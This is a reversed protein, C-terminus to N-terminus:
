RWSASNEGAKRVKSWYWWQRKEIPLNPDNAQAVAAVFVDLCCPDIRQGRLRCLTKYMRLPSRRRLQPVSKIGLLRFDELMSPGVSVLDKLQRQETRM